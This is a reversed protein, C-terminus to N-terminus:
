FNFGGAKPAEAASKNQSSKYEDQRQKMAALYTQRDTMAKTLEAATITTEDDWEYPESAAGTIVFDRRTSNVERVLPEGFASEETITRTITTAVEKGWVCTFVPNKNSVGLGEFYNMAGQSTASFEVPLIANRFDFICGRVTVKEPLNREEDADVHTVGTIVMDTKFMNRKKEDTDIKTVLHIFGGENRKVSVLEDEGNRDSYFENLGINSDVRLRQANEIGHETINKVKGSIIDSLIAYNPNTKGSTGYVPTAYTYHVSVVNTCADDTVIDITGSIYPTGPNKSTEGTVKAELSHSYLMGEIHVSNIMNKKM